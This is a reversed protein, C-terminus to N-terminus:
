PASHLGEEANEKSTKTRTEVTVCIQDGNYADRWVFGQLCTNIGYPGGPPNPKRKLQTVEANDEIVQAASAPTVCVKDEPRVLRYVYGAQCKIKETPTPTPTPTATATPSPSPQAAPEARSFLLFGVVVAVLVLLIAGIIIWLLMKPRAPPAESGAAIVRVQQAQENFEEPARDAAYAIFKVGYTGAKAEKANFTVAYQETANPAIERLPREITAWAQATAAPDEGQGGPFAGLVIRELRATSNTVSVTLAGRGDQLSVESSSTTVIIGSM